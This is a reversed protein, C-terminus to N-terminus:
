NEAILIISAVNESATVFTCYFVGNVDFKM